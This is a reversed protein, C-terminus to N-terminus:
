SEIKCNLWGKLKFYENPNEKYGGWERGGIKILESLSEEPFCTVMMEWWKVRAWRGDEMIFKQERYDYYGHGQPGRAGVYGGGHDARRSSVQPKQSISHGREKLCTRVKVGCKNGRTYKYKRDVGSPDTYGYVGTIIIIPQKGKNENKWSGGRTM